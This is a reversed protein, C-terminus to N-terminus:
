KQKNIWEEVEWLASTTITSICKNNKFCAWWPWQDPEKPLLRMSRPFHWGGKADECEVYVLTSDKNQIALDNLHEKVIDRCWGCFRSGFMVIVKKEGSVITKLVDSKLQIYHNVM